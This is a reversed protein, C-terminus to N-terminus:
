APPLFVTWLVISVAGWAVSWYVWWKGAGPHEVMLWAAAWYTVPLSSALRLAIQTHAAFLLTLGLATSHIVHPTISATLFPASRTSDKPSTRLHQPTLPSSSMMPIGCRQLHMSCFSLISLLVPAALLINPLQSLTWYQLFGTNWYAAQVHSYVSPLSHFCWSSLGATDHTSDLCFVQYARYQHLLFPTIVVSAFVVGQAVRAPKM